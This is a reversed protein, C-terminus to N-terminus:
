YSIKIREDGLLATLQNVLDVSPKVRWNDGLQLDVQSNQESDQYHYHIQVICRGQRYPTLVNKLKPALESSATQQNSIKLQLRRAYTERASALTFINNATMAYGNTYDDQRVEGEAILLTDKALINQVTEYVESYIKIELRATSDDLTIFAMKGRKNYTTRVETVWGGARITQKKETPKIHALRVCNLQALETEYPKVPHGSLYFGLSEKEGNLQETQNWPKVPQVFPPAKEPSKTQTSNAFIDNQGSAKESSYREAEKIANDLSAMMVARNIGIKTPEPGLEDFAGSKILPELVRRSVKRLNVRRCLDFLDKFKGKSQREEIMGELAAEGAGKIAGLGYRIARPDGAIVTFKYHSANINPSLVKLKMAHRCEEIFPVVKDSNDMDASLVAAMFAAPYHAKLWATQYALLAYAASHSLNFGYAAFKEMLDFIYTSKEEDVGRETAGKTFVTRQKKMEEPKKKGMARRLIDAGGLTYGALVQAIQMVQEQYVIVGYTSKLIPALDPHPYEFKEGHKREIFDDVMGSQLPGPRYLAVLAM